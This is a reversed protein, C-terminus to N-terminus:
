PTSVQDSKGALTGKQLLNSFDLAPVHPSFLYGHVIDRNHAASFALQDKEEGGEAIVKLAWSPLLLGFLCAMIM